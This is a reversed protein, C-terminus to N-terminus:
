QSTDLMYLGAGTTATYVISPQVPDFLFGGSFQGAPLGADFRDWHLGGDTSRVAVNTASVGAYLTLPQHPDAALSDIPGTLGSALLTWRNAGDNSVYVAATQDSAQVAAYLRRDHAPDIAVISVAQPLGRTAPSWTAGGDRSAFLEGSCSVLYLNSTRARDVLLVTPNLSDSLCEWTRGGDTSKGLQCSAGGPDIWSGGAYLTSPSDPDIRFVAIQSDQPFGLASWTVGGDLSKWLGHFAGDYLSAYVIDPRVPDVGVVAYGSGGVLHFAGGTERRFLYLPQPSSFGLLVPLVIRTWSRGGHQTKYLRGFPDLAYVASGEATAPLALVVPQEGTIRFGADAPLWTAGGDTSLYPGFTQGGAYVIEPSGSVVALATIWPSAPRGRGPLGWHRGGDDSRM